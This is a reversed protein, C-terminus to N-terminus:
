QGSSKAFSDLILLMGLAVPAPLVHRAGTSMLGQDSGVLWNKLKGFLGTAPEKPRPLQVLGAVRTDGAMVAWDDLDVGLVRDTLSTRTDVVRFLERDEGDLLALSTRHLPKVMKELLKRDFQIAIREGPDTVIWRSPMIKRNPKM